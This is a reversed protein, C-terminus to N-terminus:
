NTSDSDGSDDPHCAMDIVVTSALILVDDQGQEIDVGYTDTMAFWAKSVQAVPVSGRSITYEHDTFGGSAELDHPAPVDVFFRCNFFTFLEKKVVAVMVGDRYVEYTPGWALIKQRIFALEQGAMDRITLQNGISFVKGDVLFREQGLRDRVVFDDGFSFMKQKLVYLM